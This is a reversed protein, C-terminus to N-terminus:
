HEEPTLARVHSLTIRRRPPDVNVIKVALTDGVQVVDEPRDVHGEALETLHAFDEFGDERDEIRVIAGFPVLKTVVGHTIQGVQPLLQPVPDQRMAKLSLAVRERVLDVDLVAVSVSEGVHVVDSATQHAVWHGKRVIIHKSTSRERVPPHPPAPAATRRAM